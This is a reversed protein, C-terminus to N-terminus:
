PFSVSRPEDSVPRFYRAYEVDSHISIDSGQRCINHANSQSTKLLKVKRFESEFPAGFAEGDYREFAVISQLDGWGSRSLLDGRGYGSCVVLLVWLGLWCLLRPIPRRIKV